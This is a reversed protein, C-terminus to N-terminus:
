LGCRARISLQRAGAAPGEVQIGAATVWDEPDRAEPLGIEGSERVVGLPDRNGRDHVDGGALHHRIVEGPDGQVQRGFPLGIVPRASRLQVRRLKAFLDVHDALEYELVDVIAHVAAAEGGGLLRVLRGVPAQEAAKVPERAAELVLPVQGAVRDGLRIDPQEGRQGAEIGDVV